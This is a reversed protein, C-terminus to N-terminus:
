QEGLEEDRFKIFNNYRTPYIKHIKVEEIVACGEDNLHKCNSFKCNKSAAYIEEFGKIIEERDWGDIPLDRVGPSDIIKTNKELEYMTSISTTHVGQNNSLESTKILKGTLSSTLTSKGAGSNGVFMVSKDNIYSKLNDLNENNKASVKLIDIKLAEYIKIKNLFDESLDLDIKNIIIFPNIKSLLSTLLWKDIFETSTKPECTVLIGIDNINAAITKDKQKAKRSLASLRKERSVIIAKEQKSDEVKEITVKDGVVVDKIAFCPILEGNVDVLCTNTYFEVVYGTQVKKM